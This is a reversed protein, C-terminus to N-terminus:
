GMKARRKRRVIIALGVVLIGAAAPALVGVNDALWSTKEPASAELSASALAGRCDDVKGDDTCIIQLAHLDGSADRTVHVALRVSLGGGQYWRQDIVEGGHHQRTNSTRAMGASEISRAFADIMQAARESASHSDNPYVFAQAIMVFRPDKPSRYAVADAAVREPLKVYAARARQATPEDPMWGPPSRLAFGQGHAVGALALLIVLARM